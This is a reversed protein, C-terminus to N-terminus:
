CGVQGRRATKRGVGPLEILEEMTKPVQGAYKEVLIKCCARINKAKDILYGIFFAFSPLLMIGYRINFWTNSSIGPVFLASHGLYLATVNFFLPSLFALSAIRVPAVIRKDFWFIGIGIGALDEFGIQGPVPLETIM